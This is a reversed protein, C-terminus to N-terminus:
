KKKPREKLDDISKNVNDQEKAGILKIKAKSEDLIEKLDDKPKNVDDQEKTEIDAEGM